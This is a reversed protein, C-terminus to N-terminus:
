RYGRRRKAQAIAECAQLADDDSGHIDIRERGPTGIRGWSRMVVPEGFLDRGASLAYFRFMHREIDIRRLHIDPM